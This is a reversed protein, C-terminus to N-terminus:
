RSRSLALLLNGHPFDDGKGGQCEHEGSADSGHQRNIRLGRHRATIRAAASCRRSIATFFIVARAARVKTSAALMTAWCEEDPNMTLVNLRRRRHAM